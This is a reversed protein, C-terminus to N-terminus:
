SSPHFCGACTVVGGEELYSVGRCRKCRIAMLTRRSPSARLSLGDPRTITEKPVMPPSPEVSPALAVEWHQTVKIDWVDETRGSVVQNIYYDLLADNGKGM